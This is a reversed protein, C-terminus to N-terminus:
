PAAGGPILRIGGFVLVWIWFLLCFAVLPLHRNTIFPPTILRALRTLPSTLFRVARYVTNREHAGFSLLFIGGQALLLLAAFEVLGKLPAWLDLM